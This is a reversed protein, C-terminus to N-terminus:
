SAGPAYGVYEYYVYQLRGNRYVYVPRVYYGFRTRFMQGRVTYTGWSYASATETGVTLNGIKAEPTLSLAGVAMSSLLVIALKKKLNKM